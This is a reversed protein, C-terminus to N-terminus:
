PAQFSVQSVSRRMVCITPFIRSTCVGQSLWEDWISGCTTFFRRPRSLIADKLGEDDEPLAGEIEARALMIEAVRHADPGVM